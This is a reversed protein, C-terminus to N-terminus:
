LERVTEYVRFRLQECTMDQWFIGIWMINWLTPIKTELDSVTQPSLWEATASMEDPTGASLIAFTVTIGVRYAFIYGDCDHSPIIVSRLLSPYSCINWSKRVLNSNSIYSSMTELKILIVSNSFFKDILDFESNSLFVVYRIDLETWILDANMRMRVLIVSTQLGPNYRKWSFWYYVSLM